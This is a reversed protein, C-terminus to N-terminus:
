RSMDDSVRASLFFFGQGDNQELDAFVFDLVQQQTLARVASRQLM